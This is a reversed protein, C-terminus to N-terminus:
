INLRTKVRLYELTNQPVLKFTPKTHLTQYHTIIDDIMRHGLARMQDWDKPDLTEEDLQNEVM